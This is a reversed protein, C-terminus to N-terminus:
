SNRATPHELSSGLTGLTAAAAGPHESRGPAKGRSPFASRLHELRPNPRHSSGWTDQGRSHQRASPPHEGSTGPAAPGHCCRLTGPTQARPGPELLPSISSESHRIQRKATDICTDGPLKSCPPAGACATGPQIPSNGPPASCPTPHAPSQPGWPDGRSLGWRGRWRPVGMVSGACSWPAQPLVLLLGM